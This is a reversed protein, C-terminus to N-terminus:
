ASLGTTNISLVCGSECERKFSEIYIHAEQAWTDDNGRSKRKGSRRNFGIIKKERQEIKNMSNIADRCLKM